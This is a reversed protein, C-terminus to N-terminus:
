RQIVLKQALVGKSTYIKLFYMGGSVNNLILENQGNLEYCQLLKGELSLVDVKQIEDTSNIRMWGSTPQPYITLFFENPDLFTPTNPKFIVTDITGMGCPTWVTLTVTRIVSDQYTHIPNEAQSTTSDGFNWEYFLGSESPSFFFTLSDRQYWISVDSPSPLFSINYVDSWGMCGEKELSAFYQGSEYVVINEALVSDPFWTAAYGMSAFLKVTDGRCFSYNLHLTDQTFVVHVDVTDPESLCADWVQWRYIGPYDYLGGGQLSTTGLLTVLNEQTLPYYPASFYNKYLKANPPIVWAYPLDPTLWFKISVTNKGQHLAFTRSWIIQGSSNTLSLSVTQSDLSYLDISDIFLPRHVNFYLKQEEYSNLYAGAGATDEKGVMFNQKKRIRQVLLKQNQDIKLTLGTDIALPSEPSSLLSWLLTDAFSLHVTDPNCLTTDDIHPKEQLHLYLPGLWLSDEGYANFVHLVVFYNGTDNFHHQVPSSTEITGDSFRWLRSTPQFASTDILTILGSCTDFKVLAGAVPPHAVSVCQWQLTIGNDVGSADTKWLLTFRDANITLNTLPNNMEYIGVLTKGSGIGSFLFLTDGSAVNFRSSFIQMAVAGPSVVELTDNVFSYYKTESENTLYTGHCSYVRKKYGNAVLPCDEEIYITDHLLFFQSATEVKAYVIHQGPATFTVAHPGIGQASDPQANPGFYWMWRAFPYNTKGEYTIVNSLCPYGSREIAPNYCNGWVDFTQVLPRFGYKLATIQVKKGPELSTIPIIGSFQPIFSKAIIKNEQSVIIWVSDHSLSLIKIVTDMCTIVPFVQMQLNDPLNLYIIMAPDGLYTLTHFTRKELNWLNGWTQSMRLLGQLAVEGPRFLVDHSTITSPQAASGTFVPNLGPQPFMADVMGLILGDNYGSYSPAVHSFFGVAGKGQLKLLEEGFCDNEVFNGSLCSISFFIPWLSNNLLPLNSVSFSPKSWGRVDGHGRYFVFSRGANIANRIQYFNANWPFIPKLLYSPVPEGASYYDNNWYQPNDSYDAYYARDVTRGLSTLYNAIEEITQSFRRDEYTDNDDDQFQAALLHNAYYASNAPPNKEYHIIKRIMAQTEEPTSAPIRGIFMEPFYDDGEMLTYPFDSFYFGNEDSIYQAPVLEHDGLIAVFRPSFASYYYWRLTDKLIESTWKSRVVVKARYGLLTKWYALTDAWNKLLPTTIILYVDSAQNATFVVQETNLVQRQLILYNEKSNVKINKLPIRVVWEKHFIWKKEQEDYQFPFFALQYLVQGLVHVKREVGYFSSPFLGQNQNDKIWPSTKTQLVNGSEDQLASLRQAEGYFFTDKVSLLRFDFQTEDWAFFAHFSPLLPLGDGVWSSLGKIKPSIFLRNEELVSDIKWQRIKFEIDLSDKVFAYKRIEISQTKGFMVFFLFFIAVVKKM